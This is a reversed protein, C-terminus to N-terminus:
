PWEPFLADIPRKAGFIPVNAIKIVRMANYNKKKISNAQQATRQATRTHVTHGHAGQKPMRDRADM